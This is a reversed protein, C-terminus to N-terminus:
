MKQLKAFIKMKGGIILSFMLMIPFSSMDPLRLFLNVCFSKFKTQLFLDVRFIAFNEDPFIFGRSFKDHLFNIEPFILKRLTHWKKCLM